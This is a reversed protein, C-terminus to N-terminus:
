KSGGNHVLMMFEEKIGGANIRFKGRMESTTTYTAQQKVGRVVMCNHVGRVVVAVDRSHVMLDLSNALNFTGDEQTVAIGLEVDALRALKSLGITHGAPIYGIAVTYVVPLLHHPCLGNIKIGVQAVIGDYNSPFVKKALIAKTVTRETESPFKETLWQTVRRPTDKYNPEHEWDVGLATLLRAVAAHVAKDRKEEMYVRWLEQSIPFAFEYEITDDFGRAKVIADYAKDDSMIVEMYEEFTKQRM